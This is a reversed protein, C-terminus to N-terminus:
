KKSEKRKPEIPFIKRGTQYTLWGIPPRLIILTFMQNWELWDILVHSTYAYFIGFTFYLLLQQITRTRGENNQYILYKKLPFSIITEPIVGKVISTFVPLESVWILEYVIKGFVVSGPITAIVYRIWRPIRFWLQLFDRITKRFGM